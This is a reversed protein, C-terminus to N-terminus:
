TPARYVWLATSGYDRARDLILGGAAEPPEAGARVEAVLWETALPALVALVAGIDDDYPPDVFVGEFRGLDAALRLVDGARVTWDAGLEDGRRRLAALARRDREVVTVRAGRSWAELAVIGSGGFADLVSQGALDQGLMSFLAERVRDTTPRVGTGIPERLVRGRARGGTIRLRAV